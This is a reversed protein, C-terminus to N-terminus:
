KGVVQLDAVGSVVAEEVILPDVQLAVRHHRIPRVVIRPHVVRHGIDRVLHVRIAAGVM